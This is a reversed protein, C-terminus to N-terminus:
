HSKGRDWDEFKTEELSTRLTIAANFVVVDLLVSHEKIYEVIVDVARMLTSDAEIVSVAVSYKQELESATQEAVETDSAYTLLLDYGNAAFVEAVARGIGKTGGTILAKKKM